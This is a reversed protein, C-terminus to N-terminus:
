LTQTIRRTSWITDYTSKRTYGLNAVPETMVVPRDISGNKGDVGLKIFCYDLLGEMVDWNNV